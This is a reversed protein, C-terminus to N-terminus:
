AERAGHALGAALSLALVSYMGLMGSASLRKEFGPTLRKPVIHYDTVYALASIAAGGLAARALGGRRAWRGLLAEQTIAWALMASANLAGGVVTHSVDFDDHTAAKDGWLIHSTANLPAAAHGTDARGILASAVTTGLTAVGATYLTNLIANM